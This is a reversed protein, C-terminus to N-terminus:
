LPVRSLRDKDQYSKKVPFEVLIWHVVETYSRVMMCAADNESYSIVCRNSNLMFETM